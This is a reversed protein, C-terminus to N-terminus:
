ICIYSNYSVKTPPMFFKGNKSIASVVTREINKIGTTNHGAHAVSIKYSIM